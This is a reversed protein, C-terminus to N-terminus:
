WEVGLNKTAPHIIVAPSGLAVPSYLKKEGYGAEGEHYTRLYSGGVIGLQMIEILKKCAADAAIIPRPHQLKEHVHGMICIDALPFANMFKILKNLKGGTTTAYGAGHHAVLRFPYEHKQTKFVIDIFCSYGLNRVGLTECTEDHLNAMHNHREYADEHNGKLLGVCKDKISVVEEIFAQQHVRGLRGLDTVKVDESVCDPDFRVDRYGIYEAYDGLGIWISRPDQKIKDVTERFRRVACARNGLHIDGVIWLRWEDKEKAKVIHKGGLRM